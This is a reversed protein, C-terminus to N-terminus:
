RLMTLAPVRCIEGMMGMMGLQLLLGAREDYYMDGGDKM